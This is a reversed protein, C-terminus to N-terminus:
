PSKLNKLQMRTKRKEVEDKVRRLKRELKKRKDEVAYNSKEKMFKEELM